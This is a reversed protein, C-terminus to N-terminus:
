GLGSPFRRLRFGALGEPVGLCNGPVQANRARHDVLELLSALKGLVIQWAKLPTTLLTGLTGMQKEECVAPAALAVAILGLMVFEVWVVAVTLGPALQQYRQLGASPGDGGSVDRLNVFVITVVLLLVAVHVLRLWATSPRKGLMWVEKSFVPGPFRMTWPIKRRNARRLEAPSLAIVGAPAPESM